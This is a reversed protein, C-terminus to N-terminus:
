LVEAQVVLMISPLMRLMKPTGNCSSISFSGARDRQTAWFLAHWPM